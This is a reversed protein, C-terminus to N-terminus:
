VRLSLFNKRGKVPPKLTKKSILGTLYLSLFTFCLFILTLLPSYFLMYALAGVLTGVATIFKLLGTQLTESVKDLDNTVRSLIEGAKNGDFFKLPLKSLKNAIQIRLSLILNEAVSAMLYGQLFYFIGTLAYMICISLMGKGLTEWPMSFPTGDKVATKICQFLGDIIGASYYPTFVTLVVYIIICIFVACLRLKQNKLQAFLRTATAKTNKAKESYQM